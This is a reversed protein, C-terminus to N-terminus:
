APDLPQSKAQVIRLRVLPTQVPGVAFVANQRLRGDAFELIAAAFEIVLFGVIAPSNENPIHPRVNCGIGSM